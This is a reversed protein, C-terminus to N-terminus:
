DVRDTERARDGPRAARPASRLPVHATKEILIQGAIKLVIVLQPLVFGGFLWFLNVWGQLAGLFALILIGGAMLLKFGSILILPTLSRREPTLFYRVSWELVLLLSLGLIAGVLWGLLGPLGAGDFIFLGLLLMLLLSTRYVRHIFDADIQPAGPVIPQALKAAVGGRDPGAAAAEVSRVEAPSVEEPMAENPRKHEREGPPRGNGSRSKRSGRRKQRHDKAAM